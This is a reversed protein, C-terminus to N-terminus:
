SKKRSQDGVTRYLHSLSSVKMSILLVIITSSTIGHLFGNEWNQGNNLCQKDWFTVVSAGSAKRQRALLEYVCEVM